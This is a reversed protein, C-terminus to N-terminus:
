LKSLRAAAGCGTTTPIPHAQPRLAPPSFRHPTFALSLKPSKRPPGAVFTPAALTLGYLQPSARHASTTFPHSPSM